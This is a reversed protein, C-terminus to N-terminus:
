NKAQPSITRSQPIQHRRRLALFPPPPLGTRPHTFNKQKKKEFFSASGEQWRM